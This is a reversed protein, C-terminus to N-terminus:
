RLLGLEVLFDVPLPFEYQIGCNISNWEKVPAIDGKYVNLKSIDGNYYKKIYAEIKLKTTKDTLSDICNQINGFDGIVEYQHYQRVDEVYPLSRQNYAYSKGDVMPSVYRGNEPGYRDIKEGIKPIYSEKIAKGTSDLKYGGEKALSWNYDGFQNLATENIPILVDDPWNGNKKYTMAYNTPKGKSANTKDIYELHKILNEESVSSKSLLVRNTEKNEIKKKGKLYGAVTCIVNIADLTLKAISQAMVKAAKKADHMTRAAEKQNNAQIIGGIANKADAISMVIGAAALAVQLEAFLGGTLISICAMIVIQIPNGFAEIFGSPLYHKVYDFFYKDKEEDSLKSWDIDEDKYNFFIGEPTAASNSWSNLLLLAPVKIERGDYNLGILDFPSATISKSKTTAYDRAGGPVPSKVDININGKKFTATVTDTKNNNLLVAKQDKIFGSSIFMEGLLALMEDKETGNVKDILADLLHRDSQIKSIFGAKDNSNFCSLVKNIGKEKNDKVRFDDLIDYLVQVKSDFIFSDSQLEDVTFSDILELKEETKAHKGLEENLEEIVIPEYQNYEEWCGIKYRAAFEGIFKYYANFGEADLSSVTQEYEKTLRGQDVKNAETWFYEREWSNEIGSDTISMLGFHFSTFISDIMGLAEKRSVVKLM